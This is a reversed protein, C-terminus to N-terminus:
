DVECFGKIMEYYVFDKRLCDLMEDFKILQENCGDFAEFLNAVVFYHPLYYGNLTACLGPARLVPAGAQQPCRM